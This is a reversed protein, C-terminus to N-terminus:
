ASARMSDWHRYLDAATIAGGTRIALKEITGREPLHLGREIRSITPQSVDLVKAAQAMTLSNKNRWQLLNM